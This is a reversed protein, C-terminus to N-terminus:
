ETRSAKTFITPGADYQLYPKTNSLNRYTAKRKRQQRYVHIDGQKSKRVIREGYIISTHGGSEPHSTPDSKFRYILSNNSCGTMMGDFVVSSNISRSENNAIITVGSQTSKITIFIKEDKHDLFDERDMYLDPSGSPLIKRYSEGEPPAVYKGSLDPCGQTSLESPSWDLSHITPPSHLHSCGTGGLFLTLPIVIKKPGTFNIRM